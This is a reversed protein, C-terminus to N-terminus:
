PDLKLIVPTRRPVSVKTMGRAWGTTKNCRVTLNNGGTISTDYDVTTKGAANTKAVQEEIMVHAFPVPEKTASVVHVHIVHPDTAAVLPLKLRQTGPQKIDLKTSRVAGDARRATIWYPGVPGSGARVEFTFAGAADVALDVEQVGLDDFPPHYIRVDTTPAGDPGVVTGVITVMGPAAAPGPEVIIPALPPPPPESRNQVTPRPPRKGTGCAALAIVLWAIRM